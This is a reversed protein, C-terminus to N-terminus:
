RERHYVDSAGITRVREYEGDVFEFFHRFRALSAVGPSPPLLRLREREARDLSPMLDNKVDIILAPPSAELDATFEAVLEPSGYGQRVLPYGYFFRTPAARGSRVYYESQAGWVLIVDGEETHERIHDVLADGQEAHARLNWYKEVDDPILNSHMVCTFGTPVFLAVPIWPYRARFKDLLLGVAVASLLCVVPLLALYYHQYPSGSLNAFVVEVPLLVVALRVLPRARSARNGSLAQWLGISWVLLLVWNLPFFREFTERVAGIRAALPVDSYNVNYVIVADWLASLGGALAFWAIFVALTALGGAAAWGVKRLADDRQPMWILGIAFWIGVLNPRLMFAATGLAGLILLFKPAHSNKACEVRAFLALAMFQLMLAYQETLNGGEVFKGFYFLLLTLSFLGAVTGFRSCLLKGAVLCTGALFALQVLWIGWAESLLLGVANLLYILPGKHDWRDLYPTEGKLIGQAVYLFASSDRGPMQVFADAAWLFLPILFLSWAIVVLTDARTTHATGPSAGLM